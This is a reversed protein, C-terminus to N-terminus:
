LYARDGLIIEPITRPGNKREELVLCDKITYEVSETFGDPFSAFAIGLVKAISLVESLKPDVLGNEIQSIRPQRIGTAQAMAQQSIRKEKRTERVGTHWSDQTVIASM